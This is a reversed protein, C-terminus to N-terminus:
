RVGLCVAYEGRVADHACRRPLALLDRHLAQHARGLHVALWLVRVVFGWCYYIGLLARCCPMRLCVWWLVELGGVVFGWVVFGWGVVCGCVLFGVRRLSKSWGIRCWFARNSSLTWGLLVRVVGWYCCGWAPSFAIQPPAATARRAGGGLRRLRCCRVGRFGWSYFALLVGGFCFLRPQRHDLRLQPHVGREVVRVDDRHEAGVEGRGATADRHLEARSSTEEVQKVTPRALRGSSDM